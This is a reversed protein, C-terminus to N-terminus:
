RGPISHRYLDCGDAASIAKCIPAVPHDDRHTVPLTTAGDQFDSLLTIERIPDDDSNVSIGILAPRCGDALVVDAVAQGLVVLRRGPAAGGQAQREPEPGTALARLLQRIIEHWDKHM